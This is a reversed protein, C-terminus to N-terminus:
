AVTTRAAYRAAKLKHMEPTLHRAYFREIMQVSTRANRAVTFVDDGRLLSMMIATHRLSYLTRHQGTPSEKLNAAKLVHTFQRSLTHFAYNRGPLAPCFVFDEPNGFGSAKSFATLEEYIAVGEATSVVPSLTTKSTPTKIRLYVQEMPSSKPNRALPNRIEYVQSGGHTVPARVIEIHKNKLLKVDGPRLPVDALLRALFGLEETIPYNADDPQQGKCRGLAKTLANFQEENFWERPNDKVRIPEIIPMKDLLEMSVAHKLIKHLVARHIRLTGASVKRKQLTELYEQFKRNNIQRLPIGRFFSLMDKNLIKRTDSVVTQEREKRDVKAQDARMLDNAVLEFEASRILPEGKRNKSTLENWLDKAIIKAESLRETGTSRKVRVGGIFAWVQWYRSAAYKRLKLTRPYDPVYVTEVPTTRHVMPQKDSWGSVIGSCPWDQSSTPCM